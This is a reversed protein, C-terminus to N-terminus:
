DREDVPLSVRALAEPVLKELPMARGLRWRDELEDDDFVARLRAVSEDHLPRLFPLITLGNADRQLEASGHLLVSWEPDGTASALTALLQVSEALGRADRIAWRLQLSETIPAVAGADDGRLISLVGLSFQAWAIGWPQYMDRTLGLSQHLLDSMADLDGRLFAGYALGFLGLGELFTDGLERALALSEGFLLETEDALGLSFVVNGQEALSWAIQSATGHRRVLPLGQEMLARAREFDGMLATLWGQAHLARGREVTDAGPVRELLDRLRREGERFQGRVDWYPWLSSGLRLGASPDGAGAAHDLATRLNDRERETSGLWREMAGSWFGTWAQEAMAAFWALHRDWVMEAEGAAVLREVAFERITALMTFRTEGVPLDPRDPQAIVVLSKDVLSAVVDLVDATDVGDGACVSEIAALGTGGAFVGLRRFVQREATSLQDHSWSITARLTRHREPMDPSAGALADLRHELRTLLDAPQLVRLRAAALELALPLGDLRRAIEGIAEVNEDSLRFQPRVRRIRDVLLEVAPSAAVADVSRQHEADPVELPQLPFEQEWRLRLPQRSTVLFRVDDTASLIAALDPAADIVHEFNDIIVIASQGAMVSAVADVLERDGADKVGLAAAITPLVLAASRLGALEVFVVRRGDRHLATGVEVALRTKGSGGSGTITVMRTDDRDLLGRVTRLELERGIIASPAHPIGRTTATGGGGGAPRAIDIVASEFRESLLVALDNAVLERLEEGDVFSRYSVGADQMSTLLEELRPERDDAEKLYVLRPHTGSLRWEDELGSIDMDPAVWGYRRWYLGVFIHSQELYARYLDRPPHPRAGLEFMVPVLRLREIAARVAVREPALEQLTSSVFVRLRQDPTRIM